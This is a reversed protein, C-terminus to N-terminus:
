APKAMRRTALMVAALVLAGGAYQAPSLREGLLVAAVALTVVPELNNVMSVPAPEALRVAIMLFVIGAIYGSAAVGLGAWGAATAPLAPAGTVALVVVVVPISFAQTYFSAAIADMRRAARAGGIMVLVAGLSATSAGTVGRWDLEGFDPGLALALGAFAAVFAAATLPGAPQGAVLVAHILVLIPFLFFILAALGVPIFLVSSMYGYAIMLMGLTTALVPRRADPALRWPRGLGGVLAAMVAAGVLVRFTVLTPATVGSDYAVRAGTTVVGLSVAAVAAALLGAAQSAPPAPSPTASEM